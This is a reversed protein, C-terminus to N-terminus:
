RDPQSNNVSNNSRDMALALAGANPDLRLTGTDRLYVLVQIQLNSRALDYADQASLLSSQAEVVDRANVKGQILLENAFDLRRRALEIGRLQIQLTAQAARIGRAASRVDATIQQRTQVYHRNARELQILSRRYDNREALRDVPLDLQVGASYTGTRNDLRQAVTDARNGVQGSAVLDLDAQLGNAAVRVQRRADDIQDQATQLDLRFKMGTEIADQHQLDPVDLSMEVPQVDIEDHVPMGLYLKFDDLASRYREESDIIQNEAVLQAQLSRQVELFSIRGAAYLAQTRETLLALSAYNLKRNAIQQQQNILRFYQTAINVVFERRYIEFNRVAYVLTRESGILGELNVMGAGRLLPITGSLALSASQGDATNQNLADVFQVLSEAVIEGGYPLRQRFGASAAATLASRHNVDAQGGDYTYSTRVFPRPDFLHRQLTVDLAALYLDEMRDQYPRSHQVAYHVSGLLDIEAAKGGPSPPGLALRRAALDRLSDTASYDESPPQTNSPWLMQPGLPGYEPAADRMEMPSTTPPAIRTFPIKNYAASAVQTKATTPAAVQPQYALTQKKRDALLQNVQRDAARQYDGPSCALLTFPLLITFYRCNM